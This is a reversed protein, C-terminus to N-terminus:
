NQHKRLELSLANFRRKIEEESEIVLDHNSTNTPRNSIGRARTIPRRNSTPSYKPNPSPLPVDSFRIKRTRPKTETFPRIETPSKAMLRRQQISERPQISQVCRSLVERFRYLAEEEFGSPYIFPRDLRHVLDSRQRIVKLQSQLAELTERRSKRNSITQPQVVGFVSRRFRGPSRNNNMGRVIKEMEDDIAQKAKELDIAPDDQSTPETEARFLIGAISQGQNQPNLPVLLSRSSDIPENLFALDDEFQVDPMKKDPSKPSSVQRLPKGKPTDPPNNWKPDYDVLKYGDWKRRYALKLEKDMDEFSMDKDFYPEGMKSLTCADDLKKMVRIIQWAWNRFQSPKEPKNIPGTIGTPILSGKLIQALKNIGYKQIEYAMEGVAKRFGETNKETEQLRPHSDLRLIQYATFIRKEDRTFVQQTTPEAPTTSIPPPRPTTRPHSVVQARPYPVVQARPYTTIQAAIAAHSVSQQVVPQGTTQSTPQAVPLAVPLAVQLATPQTVVSTQPVLPLQTSVIARFARNQANLRRADRLIKEPDDQTFTAQAKSRTRTSVEGSTNNATPSSASRSRSSTTSVNKKSRSRKPAM